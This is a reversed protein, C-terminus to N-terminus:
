SIGSAELRPFRHGERDVLEILAGPLFGDGALMGSSVMLLALTVVGVLRLLTLLRSNM